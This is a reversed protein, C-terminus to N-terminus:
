TALQSLRTLGLCKSWLSARLNASHMNNHILTMLRALTNLQSFACNSPTCLHGQTETLFNTGPRISHVLSASNLQSFPEAGIRPLARTKGIESTM